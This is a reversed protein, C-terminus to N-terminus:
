GKLFANIAAIFDSKARGEVDINNEKVFDKMKNFDWEEVPPVTTEPTDKPTEESKATEPTKAPEPKDENKTPAVPQCDPEKKDTVVSAKVTDDFIKTLLGASKYRTDYWAQLEQEPTTDVDQLPYPKQQGPALSLSSGTHLSFCLGISRKESLKFIIRRM